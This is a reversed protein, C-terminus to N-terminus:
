RTVPIVVSVSHPLAPLRGPPFMSLWVLNGIQKMSDPSLLFDTENARKERNFVDKFSINLSGSIRHDGLSPDRIIEITQDPKVYSRNRTECFVWRQITIKSQQRVFGQPYVKENEVRISLAVNVQGNSERFWFDIDQALKHSSESWAAEILITPWKGDKRPGPIAPKWSSDPCKKRTLGTVEGGGIPILVSTAQVAWAEFIRSFARHAVDHIASPMKLVITHSIFNYTKWVKTLLKEGTEFCERFSREDVDSVVVYGRRNGERDCREIELEFSRLCQEIGQYQYIPTKAPLGEAAMISSATYHTLFSKVLKDLHM